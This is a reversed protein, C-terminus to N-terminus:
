GDSRNYENPRQTSIPGQNPALTSPLKTSKEYNFRRYVISLKTHSTLCRHSWQVLLDQLTFRTHFEANTFGVLCLPRWESTVMMEKTSM